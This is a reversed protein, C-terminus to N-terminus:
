QAGRAFIRRKIEVSTQLIIKVGVVAGIQTASESIQLCIIVIGNAFVFGSRFLWRKTGSLNQLV